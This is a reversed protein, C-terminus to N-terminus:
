RRAVTAQGVSQARLLEVMGRMDPPQDSDFRLSEGSIPHVFGLRGAHLAQRPFARVAAAAEPPLRDAKTLFGAGYLRDGILPHGIHALHVRIQHTRGTELRCAVVSALPETEGPLAFAELRMYHTVAHKGGRQVVRRRERSRTDRDLAAEIRGARPRPAGWVLAQYVREVSKGGGEGSFQAALSRHAADHKAVVMLGSTDKDLRHVIGPRRIGGIGSLSPGCHHILANVLTGSRSGPAPHVVMGPPKDVVLLHEDEYVINLAIPEGRPTAEEPEPVRYAIAEGSNVRYNPDDLTRGGVAVNGELILAKFRSRSLRGDHRALYADLREGAEDPAVTLSVTAGTEVMASM